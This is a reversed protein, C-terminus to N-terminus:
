DTEIVPDSWEFDLVRGLISEATREATAYETHALDEMDGKFYLAVILVYIFEDVRRSAYVRRYGGRKGIKLSPLQLRMKRLSAHGPVVVGFQPNLALVRAITACQELVHHKSKKAAKLVTPACGVRVDM